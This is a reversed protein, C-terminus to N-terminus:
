ILKNGQNNKKKKSRREKIIQIIGFCISYVSVLIEASYLSIIIYLFVKAVNWLDIDYDIGIEFSCYQTMKDKIEFSFNLSFTCLFIIGLCIVIFISFIWFGKTGIDDDEYPNSSLAQECSQCFGGIDEDYCGGAKVLFIVYGINLVTLGFLIFVIIKVTLNFKNILHIEKQNNVDNLFNQCIETINKGNKIKLLSLDSLNINTYNTINTDYKEKLIIKTDTPLFFLSIFSSLPFQGSFIIHFCLAIM